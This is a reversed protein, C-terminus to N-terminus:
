ASFHEGRMRPHDRRRRPPLVSLRTSGACAPIIGGAPSEPALTDPAGRAHPSSGVWPGCLGGQRAHEGRMRPHDRGPRPARCRRTTSGACAPIIGCFPPAARLRGRAGRAHPSSGWGEDEETSTSAHEGRMRPHDWRCWAWTTSWTTSGVCAPIIGRHPLLPEALPLAGRAHPSSGVFQMPMTTRSTHEGRM